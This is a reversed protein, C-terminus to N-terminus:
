CLLIFYEGRQQNSQRQVSFGQISLNKHQYHMLSKGRYGCLDQRKTKELRCGFNVSAVSNINWGGFRAGRQM